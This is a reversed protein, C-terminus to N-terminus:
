SVAEEYEAIVRDIEQLGDKDFQIQQAEDPLPYVSLKGNCMAHRLHHWRNLGYLPMRIAVSGNVSYM